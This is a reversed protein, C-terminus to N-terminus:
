QPKDRTRLNTRGKRELNRWRSSRGFPQKPRQSKKQSKKVPHGTPPWLGLDYRLHGLTLKLGGFKKVGDGRIRRVATHAYLSQARPRVLAHNRLVGCLQELATCAHAYQTRACFCGVSFCLFLSVSFCFSSASRIVVCSSWHLACRQTNPVRAFVWM